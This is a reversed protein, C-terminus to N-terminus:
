NVELTTQVAQGHATRVRTLIQVGNVKGHVEAMDATREEGVEEIISGKGAFQWWDFYQVLLNNVFSSPTIGRRSSQIVLADDLDKAIRFLRTVKKARPGSAGPSAM